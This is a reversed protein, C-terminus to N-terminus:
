NRIAGLLNKTLAMRMELALKQKVLHYFPSYPVLMKQCLALEHALYTLAYYNRQATSSAVLYRIFPHDLSLGLLLKVRAPRRRGKEANDDAPAMFNSIFDENLPNGDEDFLGTSIRLGAVELSFFVPVISNIKLHLNNEIVGIIEPDGLLAGIEDLLEQEQTKLHRAGIIKVKPSLASKDIIDRRVLDMIKEHEERITDLNVVDNFVNYFLTDYFHDAGGNLHCTDPIVIYDYKFSGGIWRLNTRNPSYYFPYSERKMRKLQSLSYEGIRGNIRYIPTNALIMILRNEDSPNNHFSDPDSLYSSIERSFIYQNALILEVRVNQDFVKLLFTKLYRNLLGLAQNYAWDLYYCDRSITVRLNDINLIIEVGPIFPTKHNYYDLLNYHVNHGGTIFHDLTTVMIREYKCLVAINNWESGYRILGHCGGEKFVLSEKKGTQEWQSVFLDGNIKMKSPYYTLSNRAHDLCAKVSLSNDFEARIWTSYKITEQLVTLSIAPRKGAEKVSFVLQVTHGECRTIVRIESTGLRRNFMAMFGMGFQGIKEPDKYKDTGGLTILLRLRETSMGEGYDKISIWRNGSEIEGM